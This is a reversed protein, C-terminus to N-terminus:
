YEPVVIGQMVQAQIDLIADVDMVSDIIAHVSSDKACTILATSTDTGNVQEQVSQRLPRYAIVDGVHHDMDDTSWIGADIQDSKLLHPLQMYTVSVYEVDEGDYELQTLAKIDISDHDIAIRPPHQPMKTQYYVAHSEVFSQAPLTLSVEEKPTCLQEAAFTSMIAIHCKKERLANMRTVSGRIFVMYVDLGAASIIKKLSTALGELRSHAILPCSIVLPEQEAFNWLVGLSRSEVFSGLHGRKEIQIAGSSELTALANSITGVSVNYSKGLERVSELRDGEKMQLLYKSLHAVVEVSELALKVRGIKEVFHDTLTCLKAYRQNSSLSKSILM